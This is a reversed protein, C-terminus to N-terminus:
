SYGINTQNSHKSWTEQIGAEEGKCMRNGEGWGERNKQM